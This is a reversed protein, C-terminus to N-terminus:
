CSPWCSALQLTLTYEYPEHEVADGHPSPLDVPFVFLGFTQKPRREVVGRRGDIVKGKPCPIGVSAEYKSTGKEHDLKNVDIWEFAYSVAEGEAYDACKKRELHLFSFGCLFGDESYYGRYFHGTMTHIESPAEDEPHTGWGIPKADEDSPDGKIWFFRLRKGESHDEISIRFPGDDARFRLLEAAATTRDGKREIVRTSGPYRYRRNEADEPHDELDVIELPATPARETGKGDGDDAKGRAGPGAWDDAAGCAAM